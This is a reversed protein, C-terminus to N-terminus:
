GGACQAGVTLQIVDSGVEPIDGGPTLDVTRVGSVCMTADSVTVTVNTAAQPRIVVTSGCPVMDIAGAVSMTSMAGMSPDLPFIDAAYTAPMGNANIATVKVPFGNSPCGSLSLRYTLPAVPTTAADASRACRFGARFKRPTAHRRTYGALDCMRDTPGAGRVVAYSALARIIPDQPVTSSAPPTPCLATSTVQGGGATLEEDAAPPLCGKACAAADATCRQEVCSAARGWCLDGYTLRDACGVTTIYQDEVWEPVSGALDYIFGAGFPNAVDGPTTGVAPANSKNCDAFALRACTPADDGWPYTRLKGAADPGSRSAYEFEVETPLRQGKWSCYGRALEADEVVVPENRRDPNFAEAGNRNCPGNVVCDSYQALTVETQDLYFSSVKVPHEVRDGACLTGQKDNCNANSGMVFQGKPLLVQKTTAPQIGPECGSLGAAGVTLASVLALRLNLM